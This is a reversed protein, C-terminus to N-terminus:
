GQSFTARINARGSEQSRDINIQSVRVGQSRALNEMFTAADDFSVNDMWVRLSEGDQEYRTLTIQYRRAQQSVVGLLPKNGATAARGSAFRDANEAMLNYFGTASELKSNLARNQKILPAVFILFILAAAVLGAVLKVVAQDRPTQDRYWGQAQQVRPDANFSNKLKDTFSM